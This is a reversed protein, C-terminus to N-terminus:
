DEPYRELSRLYDKGANAAYLNHEDTRIVRIVTKAAYDLIFLVSVFAVGAFALASQLLLSDVMRLPSIVLVGVVCIMVVLPALLQRIWATKRAREFHLRCVPAKIPSGPFPLEETAVAGCKLCIRPLDNRGKPIVLTSRGLRWPGAGLPVGLKLKDVVTEKCDFCVRVDGYHILESEACEKQCEICETM